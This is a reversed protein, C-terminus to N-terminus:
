ATGFVVAVMEGNERDLFRIAYFPEGMVGNRHRAIELVKKIHKM